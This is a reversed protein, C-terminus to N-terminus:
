DSQSAILKFPDVSLSWCKKDSNMSVSPDRCCKAFCLNLLMVLVENAALIKICFDEHVRLVCVVHQHPQVLGRSVAVAVAEALVLDGNPSPTALLPLIGRTLMVQRANHRCSM